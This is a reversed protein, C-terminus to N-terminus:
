SIPLLRYSINYINVFKIRTGNLSYDLKYILPVIIIATIIIFIYRCPWYRGINCKVM